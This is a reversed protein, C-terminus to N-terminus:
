QPISIVSWGSLESIEGFEGRFRISYGYKRGAHVDKDVLVKWSKSTWDVLIKINDPNNEYRLIQYSVKSSDISVGNISRHWVSIQVSVPDPLLQAGPALPIAKIVSHISINSINGVTDSFTVTANTPDGVVSTNDITIEQIEDNCLTLSYDSETPNVCNIACLCSNSGMDIYQIKLQNNNEDFYLKYPTPTLGKNFVLSTSPNSSQLINLSRILLSLNPLNAVGNFIVNITISTLSAFNPIVSGANFALLVTRSGCNTTVVLSSEGIGKYSPIFFPTIDATNSDWQVSVSPTYDFIGSISIRLYIINVNDPDQCCEVISLREPVVVTGIASAVCPLNSDDIEQFTM